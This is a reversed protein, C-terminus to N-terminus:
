VPHLGLAERHELADRFGFAFYVTNRSLLDAKMFHSREVGDHIDDPGADPKSISPLGRTAALWTVSPVPQTRQAWPRNGIGAGAVRAM